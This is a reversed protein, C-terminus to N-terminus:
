SNLSSMILGNCSKRFMSKDIVLKQHNLLDCFVAYNSSSFSSFVLCSAESPGEFSPKDFLTLM